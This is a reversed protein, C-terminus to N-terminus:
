ESLERSKASTTDEFEKMALNIKEKSLVSTRNKRNGVKKVKRDARLKELEKYTMSIVM